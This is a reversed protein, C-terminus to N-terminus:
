LSLYKTGFSDVIPLSGTFPNIKCSLLLVDLLLSWSKVIEEISTDSKSNSLFGLYIEVQAVLPEVTVTLTSWGCSSNVPSTTLIISTCLVVFVAPIAFLPKLPLNSTVPIM